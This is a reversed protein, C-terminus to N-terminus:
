GPNKGRSQGSKRKKDREGRVPNKQAPNRGSDVQDLWLLADVYPLFQELYEPSGDRLLRLSQLVLFHSNLPGANEPAQAFALALQRDLSLRSWTSRFYRLSKLEGQAEGVGGAARAPGGTTGEPTHQRIHALLGALPSGNGQADLAALRRHLGGFDNTECYQALADAAAPFRATGRAFAERATLRARDFRETYEAIATALRRDLIRRADDRRTAARRALAEIFRYGVPDFPEANRTRLAAILVDPEIDPPVPAVPTPPNGPEAM